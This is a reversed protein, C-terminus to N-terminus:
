ADEEETPVPVSASRMGTSLNLSCPNMGGSGEHSKMAHVPFKGIGM